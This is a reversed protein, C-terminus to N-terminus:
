GAVRLQHPLAVGSALDTTSVRDRGSRKAAYLNKDAIEIWEEPTLRTAGAGGVVGVSITVRLDPTRPWRLESVAVRIRECVVAADTAGTDPMMLSFEEGGYRCAFDTQRCERLLVRAVGELVADGAPHGYNDNVSKFHDIDLM